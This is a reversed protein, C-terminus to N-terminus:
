NGIERSIANREQAAENVERQAEQIGRAYRLHAAVESRVGVLRRQLEDSANPILGRDLEALMAEHSKVERDVYASDLADGAFGYFDPGPDQGAADASAGQGSATVSDLDRDLDGYDTSVREALNWPGPSSLRGKIADATQREARGFSLVRNVIQSDRVPAASADDFAASAGAATLALIAASASGLKWRRIKEVM